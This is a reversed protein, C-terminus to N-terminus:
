PLLGIFDNSNLTYNGLIRVLEHEVGGDLASITTTLTASDYTKHLDAFKLGFGTIDISDNNFSAFKLFDLDVIYDSVNAHFDNVDLVFIDNGLGGTLTDAGLGGILNDNGSALLDGIIIDAGDGGYITDNGADGFIIDRGAGGYEVDNGQGGFMLDNGGNGYLIDNGALGYILDNGEAGMLTDSGATGSVTQPTTDVTDNAGTITVSVIATDSDIGDSVTYTFTDVVSQGANLTDYVVNPTYVLAGASDQVITGGLVGVADFGTITLPTSEVDTDNALATITVVANEDVTATDGVADPAHNVGIFDDATLMVGALGSLIITQNSIFLSKDFGVDTITIETLSLDNGPLTSAGLLTFDIKDQGQAFDQITDNYNPSVTDDNRIYGGFTDLGAGGILVDDGAEGILVDDGAEGNLTNSFASGVLTDNFASGLVAEFDVIIDGTADGGFVVATALNVNVAATSTFYSLTDIGLSGNMQDSGAGGEIIDDGFGGILRDNAELGYITDDGDGGEIRDSNMTGILNDNGSTGSIIAM